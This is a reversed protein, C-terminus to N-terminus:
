NQKKHNKMIKLNTRNEDVVIHKTTDLHNAVKKGGRGMHSEISACRPLDTSPYRLPPHPQPQEHIQLSGPIQQLEVETGKTREDIVKRNRLFLVWIGCCFLTICAITYLFWGIIFAFAWMCFEAYESFSTM